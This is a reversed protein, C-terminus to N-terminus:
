EEDDEDDPINAQIANRAAYLGAEDLGALLMVIDAILAADPGSWTAEGSTRDGALKVNITTDM